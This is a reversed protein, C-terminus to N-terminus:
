AAPSLLSSCSKWTWVAFLAGTAALNLLFFATSQGVSTYIAFSSFQILCYLTRCALAILSIKIAMRTAAQAPSPLLESAKPLFDSAHFFIMASLGAGLAIGVSLHPEPGKDLIGLPLFLSRTWLSFGLGLGFLAAVMGGVAAGLLASSITRNTLDPRSTGERSSRLRRLAVLFLASAILGAYSYSIAVEILPVKFPPFSFEPFQPVFPLILFPGMWAIAGAAAAIATGGSSPRHLKKM